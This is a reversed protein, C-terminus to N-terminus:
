ALLLLYLLCSIGTLITVLSSTLWKLEKLQNSNLVIGMRKLHYYIKKSLLFSGFWLLALSLFVRILILSM